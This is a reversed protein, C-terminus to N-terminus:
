SKKKNIFDKIMVQTKENNFHKVMMHISTELQQNSNMQKLQYFSRKGESLGYDVKSAIDKAFSLTSKTITTNAVVRNVLGFSEAETATLIRGALLMEMLIKEPLCNFLTIMPTFCFLGINIGPTSFTANKDAIILDSAAAMLCGGAAATGHVGSIIIQHMKQFKAVLQALQRFCVEHAQHESINSLEKIDHGACYGKGRGQIIVVKIDDRGKLIEVRNFLSELLDLNLCNYTEPRNLIWREINPEPHDVQIPQVPLSTDWSQPTENISNM